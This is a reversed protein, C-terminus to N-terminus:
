ICYPLYDICVFYIDLLMLVRKADHKRLMHSFGRMDVFMVSVKKFEGSAELNIKEKELKKKLDPPIYVDSM